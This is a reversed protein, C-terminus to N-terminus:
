CTDEYAVAQGGNRILAEFIADAEELVTKEELSDQETNLFASQLEILRKSSEQDLLEFDPALAKNIDNPEYKELGDGYERKELELFNRGTLSNLYLFLFPLCWEGLRSPQFLHFCTLSVCNSENWVFRIGARGFVGVWIKSLPRKEV